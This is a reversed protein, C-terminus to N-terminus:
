ATHLKQLRDIEEGQTKIWHQMVDRMSLIGVLKGDDIVPLHRIHNDDMLIMVDFVSYDPACTIVRNTVLDGVRRHNLNKADHNVAKSIDRESVIGALKGDNDLVVLVGIKNAM